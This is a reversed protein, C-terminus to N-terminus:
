THWHWQTRTHPLHIIGYKSYRRSIAFTNTNWAASFTCMSQHHLLYQDLRKTQTFTCPNQFTKKRNIFCFLEFSELLRSEELFHIVFFDKPVKKWFPDWYKQRCKVNGPLFPLEHRVLILMELWIRVWLNCKNRWVFGKTFRGLRTDM